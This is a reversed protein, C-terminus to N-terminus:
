IDYLNSASVFSPFIDGNKRVNSVEGTFIGTKSIAKNIESGEQPDNYLVDIDKGIIDDPKYGFAKQAAENFEIIGRNKDVAIIMDISSDIIDQSYKKAVELDSRFKDRETQSARLEAIQQRLEGLEDILQEKTKSEDRM